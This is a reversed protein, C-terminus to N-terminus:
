DGDTDGKFTVEPIMMSVEVRMVCGHPVKRFAAEPTKFLGNSKIFTEVNFGDAHDDSDVCPVYYTHKTM